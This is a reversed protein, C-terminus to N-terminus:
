LRAEFSKKPPRPITWNAIAAVIRPAAPGSPYLGPTERLRARVEPRLVECLAHAIAGARSPVHRVHAPALRGSQREGVDVVGLGVSPAEIIGSSSNGLMAASLRLLGFYRTSGLAPVVAVNQRAAAWSLWYKRIVDNGPDSNPLTVVYTARVQGMAEALQSVETLPDGGLTTPHFTVVVVPDALSINLFAELAERGPLDDRHLNDLGAAGVVVVQRDPEGMQLVRRAHDHHSVLHLHALKTIAHRLANDIAGESEEGGHLHVLPVMRLTAAFAAALTESRDGLLLLADPGQRVLAAGVLSMAESCELVVDSSAFPLEEHIELGDQKLLDITRGFEARLHMGGCLVRLDFRPDSRLLLLTSRLIGYDQRGSTFVAIRRREPLTM